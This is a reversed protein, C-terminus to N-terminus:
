GGRLPEFPVGEGLGPTGEQFPGYPKSDGLVRNAQSVEGSNGSYRRRAISRERRLRELVPRQDTSLAGPDKVLAWRTHKVWRADTGDRRARNWACRRTQNLAENALAVVHFPDICRRAEPAM